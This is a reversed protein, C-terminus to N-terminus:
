LCLDQFRDPVLPTELESQLTVSERIEVPRPSSDLDQTDRWMLGPVRDGLTLDIHCGIQRLVRTVSGGARPGRVRGTGQLGPPAPHLANQRGASKWPQNSFTSTHPNLCRTPRMESLGACGPGGIGGQNPRVTVWIRVSVCTTNEAVREM